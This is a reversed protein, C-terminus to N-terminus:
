KVACCTDGYLFDAGKKDDSERESIKQPKTCNNAPKATTGAKRQLDEGSTGRPQPSEAGIRCGTVPVLEERCADQVDNRM